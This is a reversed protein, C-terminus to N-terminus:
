FNDAPIKSHYYKDLYKKIARIEKREYVNWFILSQIFSHQGTLDIWGYKTKLINNKIFPKVILRHVLKNTLIEQIM